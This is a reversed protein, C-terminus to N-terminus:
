FLRRRAAPPQAPAPAPPPDILDALRGDVWLRGEKCRLRWRQGDDEIGLIWRDEPFLRAMYEPPLNPTSLSASLRTLAPEARNFWIRAIVWYERADRDLERAAMFDVDVRQPRSWGGGEPEFSAWCFTSVRAQVPAAIALALLAVAAKRELGM